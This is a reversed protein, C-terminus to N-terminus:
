AAVLQHKMFPGRILRQFREAAAADHDLEVRSEIGALLCLAHVTYGKWGNQFDEPGVDGWGNGNGGMARDYAPRIWELFARDNCWIGALRALEGGKPKEPVPEKVAAHGVKLAALAMPTGPAGFLSFAAQANAPEVDVTLRLTGDAMTKIGVSAAEIASM